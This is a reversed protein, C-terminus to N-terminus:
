GAMDTSFGKQGPLSDMAALLETLFARKDKVPRLIGSLAAVVDARKKSAPPPAKAQSNLYSETLGHKNFLNTLKQIAAKQEPKPHQDMKAFATIMGAVMVMAGAFLTQSDDTLSDVFLRYNKGQIAKFGGDFAAQPSPYVPAQAKSHVSALLLSVTLFTRM